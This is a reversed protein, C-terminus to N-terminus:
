HKWSQLIKLLYHFRQTPMNEKEKKRENKKKVIEYQKVFKHLSQATM